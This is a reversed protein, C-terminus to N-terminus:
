VKWLWWRSRRWHRWRRSSIKVKRGMDWHSWMWKVLHQMLFLEWMITGTDLWTAWLSTCESDLALALWFASTPPVVNELNAKKWCVIFPAVLTGHEIYNPTIVTASMIASRQRTRFKSIMVRPQLFSSKVREVGCVERSLPRESRPVFLM